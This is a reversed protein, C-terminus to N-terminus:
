DASRTVDATSESESPRREAPQLRSAGTRIASRIVDAQLAERRELAACPCTRSAKASQATYRCKSHDGFRIGGIHKPQLKCIFRTRLRREEGARPFRWVVRAKAGLVLRDPKGAGRRRPRWARVSERRVVVGTFHLFSM